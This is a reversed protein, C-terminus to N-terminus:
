EDVDTQLERLPPGAALDYFVEHLCLGQPPATPGAATRDATKLLTLISSSPRRGRGVEVLTGVLNRVMQKLFATADFSIILDEGEERFDISRMERITTKAACNAARFSGFDHRGVLLAAAERMAAVDLPQYVQWAFRDKLPSRFRSRVITYEYRKGRSWRRADFTDPVREVGRIAISFPLYTNVGREYSNPSLEKQTTFSVVQGRAHVGADTRGAVMTKIVEGDHLKTLALEVAEQVSPGNIQRQWGCFDTGDYEVILKWTPM